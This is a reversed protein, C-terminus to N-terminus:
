KNGIRPFIPQPNGVKAGPKIGGWSKLKDLKQRCLDEEMGLQGWIKEAGNPIFPFSLIAIFRLSELLNYLVKSLEGKRGQDEALSWPATREIYRNAYRVLEWIVAIAQGIELKRLAEDVKEVTALALKKLEEDQKGSPVTSQAFREVMVLTRNVLNGLDNALDNNARRVLGEESFNGDEGFPIERLLFYRLADVGYLNAVKLPDVTLGKSKSLKEGGVNIFGHVFISRPLEIDAALLISPWIVSHFWLIDKGILHVDAPWFKRFKAGTPYSLSSVYNILADFWVFIVHGEDMPLPIGWRFSSRSICLDRVGEKIRNAIEGRRRKPQIFDENKEIHELVKERYDSMRFFYSEEELHEVEKDHVPCKGGVLDRQSFFCECDVCYLGEYRGKYIDGKDYVRKFIERCAKIHREETTRIFDDNSIDLKQCLERFKKSMEDVFEQPKQGARQACREIKQGHEDTGTLFFVDEGKLRHWRALADACVKEYAHGMHPSASPYDIATTIYFKSM